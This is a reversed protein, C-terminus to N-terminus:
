EARDAIVTLDADLLNITQRDPLLAGIRGAIEVEGEPLGFTLLFGEADVQALSVQRTDVTEDGEITQVQWSAGAGVPELPLPGVLSFPARLAQRAVADARFALGEPVDLVQEVVALRRDRRLRSRADAIPELGDVTDPDDADVAVIQLEIEQGAGDAASRVVTAVLEVVVAEGQSRLSVEVGVTRGVPVPAVLEHRDVGGVSELEIRYQSSGPAVTTSPSPSADDRDSATCGILVTTAAIIVILRGASRTARRQTM